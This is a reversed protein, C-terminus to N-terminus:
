RRPPFRGARPDGEPAVGMGCALEATTIQRTEKLRNRDQVNMVGEAFVAPLITLAIPRPLRVLM